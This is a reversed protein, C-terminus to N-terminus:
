IWETQHFYSLRYWVAGRLAEMVEGLIRYRKSIPGGYADNRRNTFGSLFQNFGYGHAGHIQVGDFGAAKTRSAAAAFAEVVAAIEERTMEKPIRGTGPEPVASPGWLEGEEMFLDPNARSGAHALQAMIKGGKSHVAEALRKLGDMMDDRYNGMQYSMAISNAMVYQFGTIILGIGGSALTEYFEIARDTVYGKPDCVASWTASRIARNNIDLTGISSKEFLVQM